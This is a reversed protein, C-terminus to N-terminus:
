ERARDEIFVVYAIPHTTIGFFTSMLVRMRTGHPAIKDILVFKSKRTGELDLQASGFFLILATKPDLTSLSMTRSISDMESPKDVVKVVRKGFGSVEPTM